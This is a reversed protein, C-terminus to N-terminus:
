KRLLFNQLSKTDDATILEEEMTKFYNTLISMSDPISGILPSITPHDKKWDSGPNEPKNLFYRKIDKLSIKGWEKPNQGIVRMAADKEPVDSVADIVTNLWGDEKDIEKLMSNLNVKRREQDNKTQYDTTKKYREWTNTLLTNLQAKQNPTTSLKGLATNIDSVPVATNPSEYKGGVRTEDPNLSHLMSYVPYTSAISQGVDPNMLIQIGEGGSALRATLREWLNKTPEIINVDLNAFPNDRAQERDVPKGEQINKLADSMGLANWAKDGLPLM